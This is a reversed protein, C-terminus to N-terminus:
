VINMPCVADNERQLASDRAHREPRKEERHLEHIDQPRNEDQEPNLFRADNRRGLIAAIERIASDLVLGHDPM